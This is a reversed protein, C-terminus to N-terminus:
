IIDGSFFFTTKATSFIKCLENLLDFVFRSFRFPNHNCDLNLGSREFTEWVRAITSIHVSVEVIQQWDLKM